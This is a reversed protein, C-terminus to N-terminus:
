EEAVNDKIKLMQQLIFENIARTSVERVSKYGYKKAFEKVSNYFENSVNCLTRQSHYTKLRQYKVNYKRFMAELEQISCGLM